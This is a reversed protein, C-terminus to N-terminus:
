RVRMSLYLFLLILLDFGATRLILPETGRSQFSAFTLLLGKGAFILFASAILLARKNRLRRYSLIAITALILSLGTVAVTSFVEANAAWDVM